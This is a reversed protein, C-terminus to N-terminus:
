TSGFWYPKGEEILSTSEDPEGEIEKLDEEIRSDELLKPLDELQELQRQSAVRLPFSTGDKHAVVTMTTM